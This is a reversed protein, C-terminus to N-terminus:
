GVTLRNRSQLYSLQYEATARTIFVCLRGDLSDSAVKGDDSVIAYLPGGDVYPSPVVRWDVLQVRPNQAHITM